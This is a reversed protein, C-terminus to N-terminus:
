HTYSTNIGDFLTQIDQPQPVVLLKALTVILVYFSLSQPWPMALQYGHKEESTSSGLEFVREVLHKLPDLSHAQFLWQSLENTSIHNGIKDKQSPLVDASLKGLVAHILINHGVHM